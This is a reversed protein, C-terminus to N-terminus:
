VSYITPLTLHTYSVAGVAQGTQSGAAQRVETDAPPLEDATAPVAGLVLATCMASAIASRKLSM